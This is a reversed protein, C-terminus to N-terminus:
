SSTLKGTASKNSKSRKKSCPLARKKCEDVAALIENAMREAVDPPYSIISPNCALVITLDVSVGTSVGVTISSEGREMKCRWCECFGFGSRCQHSFTFPVDFVRLVEDWEM